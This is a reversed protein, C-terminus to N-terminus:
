KRTRVVEADHVPRWDAGSQDLADTADISHCGIAALQALVQTPTMPATSQWSGHPQTVVVEFLDGARSVDIGM